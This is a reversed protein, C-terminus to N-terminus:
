SRENCIDRHFRGAEACTALDPGTSSSTRSGMTSAPASWLQQCGVTSLLLSRRRCSDHNLRSGRKKDTSDLAPQTSPPSSPHHAPRTCPQRHQDHARPRGAKDRDVVRTPEPDAFRWTRGLRSAPLVGRRALEYVTSTPIRLLDAVERATMVEDRTLAGFSRPASIPGSIGPNSHRVSVDDPGGEHTEAPGRPTPAGGPDGKQKYIYAVNVVPRFRRRCIYSPGSHRGSNSGLVKDVRLTDGVDEVECAAVCDELVLTAVVVHGLRNDIEASTPRLKPETRLNFPPGRTLNSTTTSLARPLWTPSRM